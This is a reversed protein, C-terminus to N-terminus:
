SNIAIIVDMFVVIKRELYLGTRFFLINNLSLNCDSRRM